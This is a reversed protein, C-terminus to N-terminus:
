RSMTSTTSCLPAHSSVTSTGLALQAPSMWRTAVSSVWISSAIPSSRRIPMEARISVALPMSLTSSIAAAQGSRM